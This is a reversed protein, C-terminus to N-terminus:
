SEKANGMCDYSTRSVVAAADTSTLCNGAIDYTNTQTTRAGWDTETLLNGFADYSATRTLDQPNATQSLKVARAISTQPEGCPAFSSYDTQTWVGSAVTGSVLQKEQTSRGQPDYAYASASLLSSAQDTTQTATLNAGTYTNTTLAWVTPSQYSTETVVRHLADYTSATVENVAGLSGTTQTSSTLDHSTNVTGSALGGDSSRITALQRDFAYGYSETNALGGTGTVCSVLQNPVGAAAGSWLYVEQNMTQNAVGNVTGYRRVTAQTASDYTLSARADPKTTAHYDAFRVETLDGSSYIFSMAASQGASPWNEQTIATLRSSADYGYLVKREVGTVNPFITVRWPSATAYTVTRTGAGTAYSAGSLKGSTWTLDIYQANAATIRTVNGATWTYTVTNGSKDTEALLKGASDFTLYSQDFFSLRWNSGDPALSALFGNPATWTSGSGAFVHPLRAADTYTILNATIALNCEFGFFWGPASKGATTVSSNYTRSVAAEPGWSSVALDCTALTLDRQDLLAGASHGDWEAFDYAVHRPDEKSADGTAVVSRNDLTLRLEGSDALSPSQGSGADLPVVKFRYDTDKCGSGAMKQYLASPNDRLDKSGYTTFPNGSYGQPISAIQTDTPYLSAPTAWSTATTTGVQDYKVGDWLYVTYSDALPVAPWSLTVTGRGSTNADNAGTGVFWSATATTQASLCTLAAPM